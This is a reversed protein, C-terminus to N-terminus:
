KHISLKTQRMGVKFLHGIGIVVLCIGRASLTSCTDMVALTSKPTFIPDGREMDDKLGPSSRPYHVNTGWM